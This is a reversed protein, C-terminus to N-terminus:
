GVLIGVGVLNHHLMDNSYYLLYKKIRKYVVSVHNLVSSPSPPSTEAFATCSHGGPQELVDGTPDVYVLVLGPEVLFLSLVVLPQHCLLRLFVEQRHLFVGSQKTVILMIIYFLNKNLEFLNNSKGFM